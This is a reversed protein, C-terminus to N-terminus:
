GYRFEVKFAETAEGTWYGGITCRTYDENTIHSVSSLIRDVDRESVYGHNELLWVKSIAINAHNAILEMSLGHKERITQLTLHNEESIYPM